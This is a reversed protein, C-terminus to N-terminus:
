QAKRSFAKLMGAQLGEILRPQESGLGVSSCLSTNSRSYKGRPWVKMHIKHSSPVNKNKYCKRCGTKGPKMEVM